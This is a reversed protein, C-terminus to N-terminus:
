EVARTQGPESVSILLTDHAPQKDKPKRTLEGPSATTRTIARLSSRRTDRDLVPLRGCSIRVPRHSCVKNVVPSLCIACHPTEDDDPVGGPPPPLVAAVLQQGSKRLEDSDSVSDDFGALPDQEHVKGKGKLGPSTSSPVVAGAEDAQYAEPSHSQQVGGATRRRKTPPPKMSNSTTSAYRHVTTTVRLPAVNATRGTEQM